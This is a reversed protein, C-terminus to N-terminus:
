KLTQTRLVGPVTERGIGASFDREFM